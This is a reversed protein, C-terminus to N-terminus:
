RVPAASPQSVARRIDGILGDFRAKMTPAGNGLETLIRVAYDATVHPEIPGIDDLKVDAGEAVVKLERRETRAGPQFTVREEQGAAVLRGVVDFTVTVTVADGAPRCDAVAFSRSITLDDYSTDWGRRVLRQLRTSEDRATDAMVAFAERAVRTADACSPAAARATSCAQMVAIAM